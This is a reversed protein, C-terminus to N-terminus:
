RQAGTTSARAKGCTDAAWTSAVVTNEFFDRDRRGLTGLIDKIDWHCDRCEALFGYHLLADASRVSMPFNTGLISQSRNRPPGCKM